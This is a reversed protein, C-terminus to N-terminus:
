RRKKSAAYGGIFLAMFLLDRLDFFGQTRYRYIVVGAALLAVIAVLGDLLSLRFRPKMTGRRRKTEAVWTSYREACLPVRCPMPM